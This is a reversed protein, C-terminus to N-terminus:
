DTCKDDIEHNEDLYTINKNYTKIKNDNNKLQM